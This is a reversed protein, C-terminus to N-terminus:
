AFYLARPTIFHARRSAADTRRSARVGDGAVDVEYGADALSSKLFGQIDLEEEVLLLQM